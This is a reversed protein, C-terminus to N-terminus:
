SESAFNIKEADSPKDTEEGYRRTHKRKRCPRANIMSEWEEENDDYIVASVSYVPKDVQILVGNNKPILSLSTDNTNYLMICNDDNDNAKCADIGFDKLANVYLSTKYYPITIAGICLSMDNLDIDNISAYPIYIEHETEYSSNLKLKIKSM